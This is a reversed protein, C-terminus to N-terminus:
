GFGQQVREQTMVKGQVNYEKQSVHVMYFSNIQTEKTTFDTNKHHM